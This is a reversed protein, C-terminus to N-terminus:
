APRWGSLDRGLMDELRAVDDAFYAFLERREEASLGPALDGDGARQNSFMVRRVTPPVVDPEAGVHELARRYVREPDDAVDDLLYVCLADGFRRRYPELSAAYWGGSVLTLQDREPPTARALALLDSGPPLRGNKVHHVMASYARDVPNRLVAFLRVGPLLAHVRAAVTEPDYRWLMYGPTAEGVVPEGNWGEFQERYWDPGLDEYRRRSHFFRIEREAAYIEPHQGLNFRLWRTASKQAGIVLFTPLPPRTPARPRARRGLLRRV